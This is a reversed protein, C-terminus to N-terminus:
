AATTATRARTVEILAIRRQAIRIGVHDAAKPKKITWLYELRRILWARRVAAPALHPYIGKRIDPTARRATSLTGAAARTM